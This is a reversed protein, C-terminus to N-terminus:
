LPPFPPYALPAIAAGPSGSVAAGYIMLGLPSNTIVGVLLQFCVMAAIGVGWAPHVSGARRLDAIVGILPFIMVAAFV